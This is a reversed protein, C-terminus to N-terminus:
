ARVLTVEGGNVGITKVCYGADHVNHCSVYPVVDEDGSNMLEPCFNDNVSSCNFCSISEAETFFQMCM